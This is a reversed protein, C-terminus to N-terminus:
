MGEWFEFIATANLGSRWGHRTFDERELDDKLSALFLRKDADRQTPNRTAVLGAVWAFKKKRIEREAFRVDTDAGNSMAKEARAEKLAHVEPTIEGVIEKEPRYDDRIASALYGISSKVKGQRAVYNLKEVIYDDGHEAIWQRALRDSVGQAILSEYVKSARLGDSDDINFMALQPNEKIAFRIETVARGKKRFEAAITIDSTKNVELV